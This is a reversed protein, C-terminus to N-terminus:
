ALLKRRTAIRSSGLSSMQQWLRHFPCRLAFWSDCPQVSLFFISSASTLTSGGCQILM